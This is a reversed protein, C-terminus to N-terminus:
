CRNLPKWKPVKETNKGDSLTMSTKIHKM